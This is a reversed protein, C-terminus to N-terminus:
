SVSHFIVYHLLHLMVLVYVFCYLFVVVCLCCNFLLILCYIFLLCFLLCSYVFLMMSIFLGYSVIVFVCM